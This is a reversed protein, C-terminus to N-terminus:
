AVLSDIFETYPTSPRYFNWSEDFEPMAFQTTPTYLCTLIPLRHTIGTRGHVIVQVM